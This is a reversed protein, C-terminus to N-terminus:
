LLDFRVQGLNVTTVVYLLAEASYADEKIGYSESTELLTPRIYLNGGDYDPVM